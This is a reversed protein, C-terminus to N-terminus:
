RQTTEAVWDLYPTFGGEVVMFVIEPVQYSHLSLIAAEVAPYDDARIKGTLRWEAAEEVVGDWAYLSAVPGVQVCAALKAEVLARAIARAEEESGTTSTLM